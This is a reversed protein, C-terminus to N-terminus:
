ENTSSELYAQQDLHKVVKINKSMDLGTRSITFSTKFECEEM